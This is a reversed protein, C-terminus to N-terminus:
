LRSAVRWWKIVWVLRSLLMLSYLSGRIFCVSLKSKDLFFFKIFLDFDTINAIPLHWDNLWPRKKKLWDHSKIIQRSTKFERGKWALTCLKMKAYCSSLNTKDKRKSFDEEPGFSFKPFPPQLLLSYTFFFFFLKSRQISEHQKLTLFEPWFM